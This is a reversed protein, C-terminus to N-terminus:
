PTAVVICGGFRLVPEVKLDGAGVGEKDNLLRALFADAVYCKHMETLNVDCTVLDDSEPLSHCTLNAVLKLTGNFVGTLDVIGDDVGSFFEAYPPEAGASDEDVVQLGTERCSHGVIQRCYEAFVHLLVELLISSCHWPKRCGEVNRATELRSVDARPISAGDLEAPCLIDLEVM